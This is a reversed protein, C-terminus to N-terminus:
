GPWLGYTRGMLWYFVLGVYEHAALTLLRMQEEFRFVPYIRYEGTTFYGM